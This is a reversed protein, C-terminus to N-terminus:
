KNPLSDLDVDPKTQLSSKRTFVTGYVTDKDFFGCNKLVFAHNGNSLGGFYDARRKAAATADYTFKANTLELWEGKETIAWQNGFEVQRSLYGQAPIFNELFSHPRKYWTVTKPRSFSAILQWAAEDPDFFWATYVTAGERDVDPHVRTLFQYTEGAEWSYRRFSQGGSGEGGFDNTVVDTGKELLLVRSDEPIESPDDTTYPSWVSFLIRRESASNVQIGCYGEGFGNVMYYSGIVDEGTPVTVENYFYEINGASKPVEYSLHVSPGRRGFYFNEPERVFILPEQAAEGEVLIASVSGFTTGSKSSGQFDVKVHENAKVQVTGVEIIEWDSNSLEVHFPKGNVVVKITSKGEASKAKISLTLGGEHGVKFWSSVIAREDDWNTIGEKTLKMNGAERTLYANGGLPIEVSDNGGYGATTILSFLVIYFFQKM